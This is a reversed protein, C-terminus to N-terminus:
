QISNRRLSDFDNKRLPFRRSRDWTKLRRDSPEPLPSAAILRFDEYIQIRKRESEHSWKLWGLSAILCGGVLIFEFISGKPFGGFLRPFSSGQFFFMSVLWWPWVGNSSNTMIASAPRGTNLSVWITSLPFSRLAGVAWVSILAWTLLYIFLSSISWNTSGAGLAFLIVNVLFAARLVPKFQLKLAVLQGDVIEPIWMPTTLLLELAGSRRDEGIRKGATYSFIWILTANLFIATILCNVAGRWALGWAWLGALWLITVGVIVALCVFVPQRDCAALWVFPAEDLWRRRLSLRWTPSGRVWEDFRQRWTARAFSEPKDRWSRALTWAATALAAVSLGFTILSNLWFEAMSGVLFARTVMYPGYAPSLILWAAPIGPTGTFVKGAYYVAPLGLCIAVGGLAVLLLATSEDKCLVSALLSLSLTFLLLNPLFSIAGLFQSFSVGGLLFPVSLFPFIALLSNFAILAGSFLKSLFLEFATMGTLFLLGLTNNRREASFLDAAIRPTQIIALYGGLFLLFDFVKKGATRSDRTLLLLLLTVIAAAFATWWRTQLAFKKRRAVRFEREIIPPLDV